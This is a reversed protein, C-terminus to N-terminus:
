LQVDKKYKYAKKISNEISIKPKWNLIQKAKTIDAMLIDPENSRRKIIEINLDKKKINKCFNIIDIVSYGIGNGANFIESKNNNELYECSLINLDVIDEVDIYDRICTGDKTQYNNGYVKVIDNNLVNPILHTEPTHNEGLKLDNSAGSVNFYRLIVSKINFKEYQKIIKETELKTKGYINIPRLKIDEKTCKSNGYVSASSSFIIKYVNNDIMANLLNISASVNNEFYKLPSKQSEEVSTLGAFHLICDPRTELAKSIDSYNTLDGKIFKFNKFKNLINIANKNNRSLNDFGIVEYNNQLFRYGCISGIFGAIGTIFIRKM